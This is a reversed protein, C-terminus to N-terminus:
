FAHGPEKTQATVEVLLPPCEWKVIDVEVEETVMELNQVPVERTELRTGVVKLTCIRDKYFVYELTIDGFKRSLNLLYGVHEKEFVKLQRAIRRATDLNEIEGFSYIAVRVTEPKPIDPNEDFFNALSRLDGSINSMQEM